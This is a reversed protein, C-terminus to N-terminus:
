EPRLAAAVSTRAAARSAPLSALVALLIAAAFTAVVALLPVLPSPDVGLTRAFAQWVLSGAAAGIPMGILASAAATTAAQWRVSQRLDRSTCGLARLVALERRRALVSAAVVTALGALATAGLVCALTTVTAQAEDANALEAPRLLVFPEVSGESTAAGFRQALANAVSAAETGATLDTFLVSPQASPALSTLGAQTMLAGEGASPHASTVQGVSPLVVTGVVLLSGSPGDVLDDVGVGIEDATVRGLAVEDPSTPLRGSLLTFPLSGRIATAWLSPVDSEGLQVSAFGAVTVAEVTDGDEGAIREVVEMDITDYGGTATLVLDSAWGYRSPEDVLRGLGAGFALATVITALSIASIVIAGRMPAGTTSSAGLGRRVGIGAPPPLAAALRGTIASPTPSSRVPLTTRLRVSALVAAAGLTVVIVFFGVIVVLLDVDVGRDPEIPRVGGLPALPSFAVAVAVALVGGTMAAVVGSASTAVALSRPGAGMARLALREEEATRALRGVTLCGVALAAALATIGFAALAVIVPRASRQVSAVQDATKRTIVVMEDGAIRRYDAVVRDVTSPDDLRLGQWVYGTVDIWRRTAAPTLLVRPLRDYEDRLVEEPFIGIGVVTAEIGGIPAGPQGSYFTSPDYVDLPLADGVHLSRGEAMIANVLVEDLAEAAPLRGSIVAVRDQSTYRGDLSGVFEPFDTPDANPDEASVGRLVMSEMALYAADADVGAIAAARENIALVDPLGFDAAEAAPFFDVAVDSAQASELYRPFASATRRAAALSWLGVGAALGVLLGIAVVARRNRRLMTRWLSM